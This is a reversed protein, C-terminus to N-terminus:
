NWEVEYQQNDFKFELKEIELYDEGIYVTFNIDRFGYLDGFEYAIKKILDASIGGISKSTILDIHDKVLNEILPMVRDENLRIEEM